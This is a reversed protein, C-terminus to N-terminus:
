QGKSGFLSSLWGRRPTDNEVPVEMSERQTDRNALKYEVTDEWDIKLTTEPM